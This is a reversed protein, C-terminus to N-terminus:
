GKLTISVFKTDMYAQLGEVGGEHGYGSQKLGGFPAEATAPVTENVGIVGFRLGEYARIATEMDDTIVYAALGYPTENALKLGEEVTGFTNIPLIPGFIEENHLAMDGTIDTLVTPRYFYGTTLADPRTGGTVIRAGKSVADAVLAEIKARGGASVMPGVTVGGGTGEGLRLSEAYHKSADVFEEYRSHHVYVRNPAICVQGSNRFKGIGVLRAAKEPDADPFVLVPANGGLELSFRKLTGAAQAMLIRGVRQSGTFSIKNMLPSTCFAEGIAAPDGNVLNVVGAPVGAAVLIGAIAMGTMPTLESPRAVVSCGAALSASIKRALLLAPFNWATIAGVVGVPTPITMLRRDKRRAPILRGYARKGEEAFWDFLDASANWEGKSEALPKGAERTMILALDTINERILAATRELVEGREYATMAAWGSQARAAAAIALHADAADGFPVTAIVSEDAPNIVEWTKGNQADVWAGDILMKFTFNM